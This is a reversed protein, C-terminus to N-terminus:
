SWEHQQWSKTNLNFIKDGYKQEKAKMFESFSMGKFEHLFAPTDVVILDRMRYPYPREGGDILVVTFSLRTGVFREDVYDEWCDTDTNYIEGGHKLMELIFEGNCRGIFESFYNPVSTTPPQIIGGITQYCFEERVGGRIVPEFHTEPQVQETVSLESCASDSM